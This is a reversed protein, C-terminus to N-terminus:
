EERLVMLPDARTAALAPLGSAVLAIAGILCVVATVTVPDAVGVGFLQSGLARSGALALALGITLGAVTLRAGEAMVM